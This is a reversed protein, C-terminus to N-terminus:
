KEIRYCVAGDLESNLNCDAHRASLSPAVVYRGLSSTTSSNHLIHLSLSASLVNLRLIDFLIICVLDCPRNGMVGRLHWSFRTEVVGNDLSTQRSSIHMSCCVVLFSLGYLKRRM